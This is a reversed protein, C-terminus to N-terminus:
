LAAAREEAQDAGAVNGRARRIDALLLWGARQMQADNGALSLGKLTFQEAAGLQNSAVYAESLKFYVEASRPAIRQARELRAIAAPADGRALLGDAERILSLAAPSLSEGSDRYSPSTSRPSSEVPESTEPQESKRWVRPEEPESTTRPPEPARPADGGIPVYISEGPSSACGALALFATMSGACILFRTNM